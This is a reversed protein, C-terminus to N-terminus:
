LPNISIIYDGSAYKGHRSVSAYVGKYTVPLVPCANYAETITSYKDVLLGKHYLYVSNRNAVVTRANTCYERIDARTMVRTPSNEILVRSFM